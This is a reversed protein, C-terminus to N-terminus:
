TTQSELSPEEEECSNCRGSNHCHSCLPMACKDCSEMCSTCNLDGCKSCVESCRSCVRDNCNMCISSCSDCAEHRGCVCSAIDEAGVLDGCDRCYVGSWRDLQVYAGGSNYTTLLSRIILFFDLLRGSALAERIVTRGEGECLSHDQIHPHTISQDSAAPNPDVAITEYAYSRDLQDWHLRIEFPGLDVGELRIPETTVSLSRERASWGIFPFEDHLATLDRFIDLASAFNEVSQPAELLTHETDLQRALSHFYYALQARMRREAAALRRDRALNARRTLRECQHWLDTQLRVAAVPERKTADGHITVALKLLRRKLSTQM